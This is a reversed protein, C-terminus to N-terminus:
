KKIGNKMSRKVSIQDLVEGIKVLSEKYVHVKVGLAEEIQNISWDDLFLGDHNLVRPPLFIYDGLARDKLHAYIDQGVLLGSVEIAHGYFDNKVPILDIELNIIKNLKSIFHKELNEAALTGTVWSIKCPHEIASPLLHLNKEFNDMMDRFEGVGNEIQYFEDYYDFGPLGTKAKIFFEDALYVYYSGLETKLKKRLKNTYDIMEQLEKVTHLRLEYLRERHRTLGVPVIAISRVGPFYTKLDNVTQDFVKGDNIGPCLVIQAHLEINGKVLFDIKELLHDDRKIGLLLRRINEETAHVSIYLPSLQQNVIRDLDTQSVTTLTVYHGYLFSFRYDEDKFYLAKRMGRPNQYVFCFVCNNGCAKMKMDALDIGLDENHEKEIEFVIQEFEKQVLLDIKAEAAYFRFDIEDHIPNNNVSVVQDGVQLGLDGAISGVNVCKIEIM